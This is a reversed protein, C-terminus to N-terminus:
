ACCKSTSDLWEGGSKISAGQALTRVALLGGDRFLRTRGDSSRWTIVYHHWQGDNARNEATTQLIVEQGTVGLVFDPSTRLFLANDFDVNAYSIPHQSGQGDADLAHMWFSLSMATLTPGITTVTYHGTDASGFSLDWDNPCYATLTPSTTQELYVKNGRLDRTLQEWTKLNGAALSGCLSQLVQDQTLVYNYMNMRYLRGTFRQGAELCGGICDQDNGLVIRGGGLM